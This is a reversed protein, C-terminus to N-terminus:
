VTTYGDSGGMKLVKENDWVSVRYRHLLLEGNKGAGSSRAVM